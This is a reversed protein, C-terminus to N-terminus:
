LFYEFKSENEDKFGFEQWKKGLKPFNQGTFGFILGIKVQFILINVLKSM